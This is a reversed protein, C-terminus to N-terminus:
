DKWEEFLFRDAGDLVTFRHTTFGIHEYLRRGAARARAHWPGTGGKYADERSRWFGVNILELGRLRRGCKCTALNQRDGDPKGFWYKLLGGSQCAERHSEFDLQYLLKNDIDPKLKSRFIVVYFSSQCWKFSESAALARLLSLVAEFDLAATYPATAYDPRVPKLATLAKAFLRNSTDLHALNLYHGTENYPSSILLTSFLLAGSTAVEAEYNSDVKSTDLQSVTRAEFRLEDFDKTVLSPHLVVTGTVATFAGCEVSTQPLTHDNPKDLEVALISM